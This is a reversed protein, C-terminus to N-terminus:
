VKKNKLTKIKDRKIKNNRKLKEKIELVLVPRTKKRYNSIKLDEAVAQIRSQSSKDNVLFRGTFYGKNNGKNFIAQQVPNYKGRGLFDIIENQIKTNSGKGTGVQNVINNNDLRNFLDITNNM